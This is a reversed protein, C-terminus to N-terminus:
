KRSKIFRPKGNLVIKMKYQYNAYAANAYGVHMQKDALKM